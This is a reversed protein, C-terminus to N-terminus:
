IKGTGGRVKVYWKLSVTSIVDCAKYSCCALVRMFDFYDHYRM